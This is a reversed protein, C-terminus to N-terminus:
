NFKTRSRGVALALRLSWGGEGDARPIETRSYLSPQFARPKSMSAMRSAFSHILGYQCVQSAIPKSTTGGKALPIEEANTYSSHLDKSSSTAGPKAIGLSSSPPTMWQRQEQKAQAEAAEAGLVGDSVAPEKNEPQRTNQRKAPPVDDSSRSTRWPRKQSATQQEMMLESHRRMIEAKKLDGIGRIAAQRARSSAADASLARLNSGIGINPPSHIGNLDTDDEPGEIDKQCRAPKASPQDADQM